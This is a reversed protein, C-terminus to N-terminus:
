DKTRILGKLASGIKNDKVVFKKIRGNMVVDLIVITYYIHCIVAVATAIIPMALAAGGLLEDAYSANLSLYDAKVLVFAANLFVFLSMLLTIQLLRRDKIIAFAILTIAFFPLLTLESTGVFYVDLTLLVFSALMVLNARNKKTVYVIIVVLTIAIAFLLSFVYTPFALKLTEGNKGFITYLSLGNYTFFTFNNFPRLYYNYLILFPNAGINPLAFPLIILYSAAMCAVVAIPLTYLLKNGKDSAFGDKRVAIIRKVYAYILFVAVIPLLYIAEFCLLLAITYAVTLLVYKRELMFYMTAALAVALFSYVSPWISGLMMVPCLAIFGGICMAIDGGLYKNVIKYIVYALLVDSIVFPLKLFILTAISTESIGGILSALSGFFALIYASLPYFGTRGYANVFAGFGNNILTDVMNVIGVYGLRDSSRAGVSGILGRTSFAITMRVVAGVALMLLFLQKSSIKLKLSGRIAVGILWIFGVIVAITMLTMIAIFTVGSASMLLSNFM